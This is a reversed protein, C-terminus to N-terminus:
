VSLMLLIIFSSILLSYSCAKPVELFSAELLAEKDPILEREKAITSIPDDTECLSEFLHNVCFSLYPKIRKNRIEEYFIRKYEALLLLLGKRSLVDSFKRKEGFLNQIVRELMIIEIRLLGHPVTESEQKQEIFERKQQETKDYAKLVYYKTKM